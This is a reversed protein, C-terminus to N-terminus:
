RQSSTVVGGLWRDLADSQRERLMACREIDELTQQVTRQADPVPHRQFFERIERAASRDCFAGLASVIRAAGGFAGVGAQVDAWRQQLVEWALPRGVPNGLVGAILSARDQARVADSLAYDLTRRLLVPDQFAALAYLFRYREEPVIAQEARTRFAGYLGADGELAALPVLANLITAPVQSDAPRALYQRVRRRADALVEPSRGGTGLLVLTLALRRQRQEDQPTVRSLAALVPQFQQRIWREFEGRSGSTTLYEHLFQLRAGLAEVVDPARVDRALAAALDMFAPADIRGARLLAWEDAVLALREDAALEANAHLLRQLADRSHATRYYGDAGRNGVVWRACGPLRVQAERDDLLVCRDAPGDGRTELCVPIAWRRPEAASVPPGLFPEQTLRVRTENQVCSTEVSVLPLGPQAVFSRMVRDVPRGTARTMTSWFDEAAANDYRFHHLYANVGARFAEEGVYSEVMRLIAAAKEYAIPDFLENIEDPTEAATRVARTATLADIAMAGHTAQLEDVAVNWEPKWAAVAKTEMWTAFGENLWLDDWWRMTVLNGFWQHALEHAIITAVRKRVTLAADPKVMLLAERFFVAGTNEMAGAAFDPIAVLDLKGFPYDMAFYDNLSSLTAAAADLAFAGLDHVAPTSCVRLPTDGIVRGTCTFDGVALAVLYSSMPRTTGFTVTKTGPQPGPATSEVPGNSIATDDADIVATISFTAKYQPEDFSPFMRRADAAELQTVAYKRGNAESIYFGRLQRNLIATYAIRIEADGPALSFPLRLTVTQTKPDLTTAVVADRGGGRVRASHIDIDAAHLVLTSTPALVRVQIRADGSFREAALDPVFRLDYHLPAAISPLRQALAEPALCVAIALACGVASRRHFM